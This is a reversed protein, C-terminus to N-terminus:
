PGSGLTGWQTVFVPPTFAAAPEPCALLGSLVLAPAFRHLNKMVAGDDSGSASVLAPERLLSVGLVAAAAVGTLTPDACTAVGFRLSTARVDHPWASDLATREPAVPAFTGAAHGRPRRFSQSPPPAEPGHM